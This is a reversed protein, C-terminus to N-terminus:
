LYNNDMYKIASKSYLLDYTTLVTIKKEEKKLDLLHVRGLQFYHCMKGIGQLFIWIVPKEIVMLIALLKNKKKKKKKKKLNRNLYCVLCKKGILGSRSWKGLVAM